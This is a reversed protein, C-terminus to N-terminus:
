KGAASREAFVTRAAQLANLAAPFGAYLSVQILVEVLEDATCGVHLAAHLHVELQPRATGLAALMAVTALERSRLDLAPRAYVDGFGFEIIYRALDPALDALGQVVRAGAEGDVEALRKWGRRFRQVATEGGAELEQETRRVWEDATM